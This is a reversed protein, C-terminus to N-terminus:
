FNTVIEPSISILCPLKKNQRTIEPRNDPLYLTLVPNRNNEGLIDYRDKLYIKEHIM